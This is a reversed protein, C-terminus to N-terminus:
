VPHLLSRTRLRCSLWATATGHPRLEGQSSPLLCPWQLCLCQILRGAALAQWLPM